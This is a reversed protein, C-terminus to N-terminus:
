YGFHCQSCKKNVFIIQEVGLAAGASFSDVEIDTVIRVFLVKAVLLLSSNLLLYSFFLIHFYIYFM